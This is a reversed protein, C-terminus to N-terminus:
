SEQCCGEGRWKYISIAVDGWCLDDNMAGVRNRAKGKDRIGAKDKDRTEM